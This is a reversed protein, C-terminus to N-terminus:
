SRGSYGDLSWTCQSKDARAAHVGFVNPVCFCSCSRLQGEAATQTCGACVCVCPRPPTGMRGGAGERVCVYCVCMSPRAQGEAARSVCECMRQAAPQWELTTSLAQGRSGSGAPAAHSPPDQGVGVQPNGRACRPWRATEPRGADTAACSFRPDPTIGWRRHDRCRLSVASVKHPAVRGEIFKVIDQRLQPSDKQDPKLVVFARPM